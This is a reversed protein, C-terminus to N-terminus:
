QSFLFKDILIQAQASSFTENASYGLSHSIRQFVQAVAPNNQNVIRIELALESKVYMQMISLLIYRVEASPPELERIDTIVAFGPKLMAVSKALKSQLQAAEPQEFNGKLIVYLLNDIVNARIDYM